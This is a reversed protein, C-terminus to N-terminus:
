TPPYPDLDVVTAATAREVVARLEPSPHWTLRDQWEPPVADHFGVLMCVLRSDLDAGVRRLYNPIAENVFGLDNDGFEPDLISYHLNHLLDALAWGDGFVKRGYRVRWWWSGSAAFSQHSRLVVFGHHVMWAYFQQKATVGKVPAGGM